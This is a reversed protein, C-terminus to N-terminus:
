AAEATEAGDEAAPATTHRVRLAAVQEAGLSEGALSELLELSATLEQGEAPTDSSALREAVLAEFALEKLALADAEADWAGAVQLALQPREAVGVALTALKDTATTELAASGAQFEVFGLDEDGSGGGLKALLRFPSKVLESVVEKVAAQIANGIGFGPDDLSGEIPFELTVLGNKDTLLSVGLKFPLNMLGEGEVKDGLKMGDTVILNNGTLRRASIDYELDLTAAGVDFPHGIFRVAMPSLPPLAVERCDLALDTLRGPDFVDIEGAVVVLGGGPVSGKIDVAAGATAESSIGTLGGNVQELALRFEPELTQDIYVGKCDHLRLRDVRIPPMPAADAGAGASREATVLMLELLNIRGEPSVVVDIGAGHIDLDAVRLSVPAVTARIGDAEVLGWELLQSGVVTEVLDIRDIAFSGEFVVDPEEDHLAFRLRGASRVTGQRLEIPALQEIHGGLDGIELGELGVELDAFPPMAGVEGSATGRGSGALLASAELGWRAGEKTLIDTLVLSTDDVTILQPEPLTRDEVEARAGALEFRGVDLVWHMRAEIERAEEVIQEEAARPMLELLGPTGDPEIWTRAVPREVVIEDAGIVAEPWRVTGGAVKVSPLELVKTGDDRMELVLNGISVDANGVSARLGGDDIAAAYELRGEISGSVLDFNFLDKIEPWTYELFLGSFSVSGDIGLPEVTVNGNVRVEGGRPLGIVFDHNGRREPITSIDHLEFHAPGLTMELPESLARDDIEITTDNVEIHQLLARPLGGDDDAADEASPSREEIDAMLELVNVAGDEFRRLAAFPEDIRLEKLTLAWRFLSSIEANAYLEEFSLLTLGPRDPMSFGRVTLSLAFPNCRVDEVFVERGTRERATNIILKRAIWPVLFFGALTYVLFAAVLATRLSKLRWSRFWDVIKAM